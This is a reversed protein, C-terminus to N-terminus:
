VSISGRFGRSNYYSQAGNHGVFNKGYRWECFLAGGYKRVDTLTHIWSSTKTDFDGLKQLYSYQDETLLKIGMAHAM